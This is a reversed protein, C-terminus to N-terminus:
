GKPIRITQGPYIKDPDDIVGKNAEYIERWRMADGYERKAIKSLSDGSQITYFEAEPEPPAETKVVLNNDNVQSVGEINGATLVVRQKASYSAVEGGLSVIGAHYGVSLNDVDDEFLDRIRRKIDEAENGKEVKKGKGKLFDFIGM